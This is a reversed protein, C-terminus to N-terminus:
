GEMGGAIRPRRTRFYRGTSAGEDKAAEEDFTEALGKYFAYTDALTQYQISEAGSDSKAIGLRRGVATLILRIARPTARAVSGCTDILAQLRADSLELDLRDWSTLETDYRVYEGSDEKRYATQAVPSSPLAAADAVTELAIVGDPDCIRLRLEKLDTWAM